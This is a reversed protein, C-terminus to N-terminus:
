RPVRALELYPRTGALGLVPERGVELLAAPQYKTFSRVDEGLKLYVHGPFADPRMLVLLERAWVLGARTQIQRPTVFDLHVRWPSRRLEAWTGSKVAYGTSEVDCSALLRVLDQEFRAGPPESAPVGNRVIEIRDGALIPGALCLMALLCASKM